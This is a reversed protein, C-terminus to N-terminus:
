KFNIEIKKLNVKHQPLALHVIYGDYINLKKLYWKQTNDLIAIDEKLVINKWSSLIIGTGIAKLVAEKKTWIDFFAKEKIKHTKIFEVEEKSLLNKFNEIKIPKIKEIDIGIEFNKSVACIVFDGSHSINFYPANKIYPKSKIKDIDISNSNKFNLKKLGEILLLKGILSALRNDKKQYKLINDRLNQPLKNLFQITKKENWDSKIKHYLILIENNNIM